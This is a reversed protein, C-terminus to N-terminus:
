KLRYEYVWNLQTAIRANKAKFYYAKGHVGNERINTIEVKEGNFKPYDELGTLTYTQGVKFRHGNEVGVFVEDNTVKCGTSKEFDAIAKANNPGPFTAKM